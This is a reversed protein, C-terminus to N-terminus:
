IKKNEILRIFEKMTERPGKAIVMNILFVPIDGGPNSISKYEVLLEGNEIPTIEWTSAFETIHVYDENQSALAKFAYSQSHYIGTNQDIWHKSEITLDRDAFPFPFDLTIYYIFEGASTKKILSSKNCKYVWDSYLPVNSLFNTVSEMSAKVTCAIRIEKISSNAATRSYVEIGNGNNVLKWDDIEQGYVILTSISFLAFWIWKSQYFFSM